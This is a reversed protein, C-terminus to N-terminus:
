QVYNSFISGRESFEEGGHHVWSTVLRVLPRHKVALSKVVVCLPPETTTESLTRCSILFYCNNGPTVHFLTSHFFQQQYKNM